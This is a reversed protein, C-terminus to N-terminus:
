VTTPLLKKTELFTIIKKFCKDISFQETDVIFDPSSPIEYIDNIGTFNKIKGERALQYMGKVDRSECKELSCKVYILVFKPDNIVERAIKRVVDYPSVLSVCVPVNHKQLLKALHAVKFNQTIRSEREFDYTGLWEYLEDGDLVALNPIAQELKRAITTKGSCPRGTLWIVCTL